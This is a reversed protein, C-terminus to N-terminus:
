EHLITKYVVVNLREPTYNTKAFISFTEMRFDDHCLALTKKYVCFRDYM